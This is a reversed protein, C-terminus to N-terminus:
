SFSSLVFAARTYNFLLKQQGDAWQLLGSGVPCL